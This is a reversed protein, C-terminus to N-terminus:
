LFSHKLSEKVVDPYIRTKCGMIAIIYINFSPEHFLRAGPSLPEEVEVEVEVKNGGSGGGNDIEPKTNTVIPKLAQKRWRLGKVSDM